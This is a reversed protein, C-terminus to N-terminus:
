TSWDGLGWPEVLGGCCITVVLIMGLGCAPSTQVGLSDECVTAM